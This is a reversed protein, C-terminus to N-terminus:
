LGLITGVKLFINNKTGFELATNFAHSLHSGCPQLDLPFFLSFTSNIPTHFSVVLRYYLTLCLCIIPQTAFLPLSWRM